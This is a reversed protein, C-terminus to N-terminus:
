TPGPNTHTVIDVFSADFSAQSVVEVSDASMRRSQVTAMVPIRHINSLAKFGISLNHANEAPTIDLLDNYTLLDMCDVLLVDFSAQNLIDRIASIGDGPELAFVNIGSVDGTYGQDHAIQAIRLCISSPTMETGVFCVRKGQGAYSIATRILDRTKGTGALGYHLWLGKFSHVKM